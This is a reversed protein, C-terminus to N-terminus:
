GGRRNTANETRFINRKKLPEIGSTFLRNRLRELLLCEKLEALLLEEIDGLLKNGDIRWSNCAKGKTICQENVNAYDCGAPKESLSLFIIRTTSSAGKGL